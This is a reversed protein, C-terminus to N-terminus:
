GSTLEDCRGGTQRDDATPQSKRCPPQRDVRAGTPSLVQWGLAREGALIDLKEDNMVGGGVVAMGAGIGRRDQSAPIVEVRPLLTPVVNGVVEDDVSITPNPLCPGPTEVTRHGAVGGTAILAESL